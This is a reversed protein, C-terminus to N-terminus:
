KDKMKEITEALSIDIAEYHDEDYQMLGAMLKNLTGIAAVNKESYGNKSLSGIATSIDTRLNVLDSVKAIQLLYFLEGKDTRMIGELPTSLLQEM